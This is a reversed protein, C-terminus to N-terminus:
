GTAPPLSLGQSSTPRTAWAVVLAVGYSAVGVAGTAFLGLAPALLAFLASSLVSAIANMAFLWPASGSTGTRVLAPFALGMPAAAAAVVAFAVIAAPAAGVREVIPPAFVLLLAGGMSAALAAHLARVRGAFFASSVGAGILMAATVVAFARLPTGLALTLRQAAALEVLLFGVGLCAAIGVGALSPRDGRRRLARVPLAIVVCSLLTALLAVLAVSREALAPGEIRLRADLGDDVVGSLRHFFPRDDTPIVGDGRPPLPARVAGAPIVVDDPARDRFVLLGGYFPDATASHLVVIHADIDVDAVGNAALAARAVDVLLPLQAAPRTLYLVGGETLHGVLTTLSEVTLLFDEVLRMAGSALAANTITHIAIIHTYHADSGEVFARAEHHHLTVRPDDYVARATPVADTRVVDVVGSAIEVADITAAGAALARAVEYGAGAGIVLVHGGVASRALFAASTVDDSPTSIDRTEPARTVAAGFDFLVRAAPSAPIVDVRADARDRTVLRGAASLRAVVDAATHEGVKKDRTPVPTVPPGVVVLSLLAVAVVLSLARAVRGLSTLACAGAATAGAVLTAGAVGVADILPLGLAVGVAAGVLDAGYVTGARARHRELLASMLLGMGAFPLAAVLLALVIEATAAFERVVLLPELGLTLVLWAALPAGLAVLAAGLLPTEARALARPSLVLVTGSAGGGLMAVSVGLYAFPPWTVQAFARMLALEVVLVAAAVLGTFM